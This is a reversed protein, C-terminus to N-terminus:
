IEVVKKKKEVRCQFFCFWLMLVPWKVEREINEEGRRLTPTTNTSVKHRKKGLKSYAHRVTSFTSFL